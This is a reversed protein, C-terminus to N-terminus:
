PLKARQKREPRPRTRRCELVRIRERARDLQFLAINGAFRFFRAMYRGHQPEFTPESNTLPAQRVRELAERFADVEADSCRRRLFWVVGPHLEVKVRM